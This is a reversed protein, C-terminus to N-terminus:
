KILYPSYFDKKLTELIIEPRVKQNQYIIWPIIFISNTLVQKLDSKRFNKQTILELYGPSEISDLIQELDTKFDGIFYISSNNAKASNLEKLSLFISGNQLINEIFKLSLPSNVFMRYLNMKNLQINKNEGLNTSYFGKMDVLELTIGEVHINELNIQGVENSDVYLYCNTPTLEIITNCVLSLHRCIKDLTTYNNFIVKYKRIYKFKTQNRDTAEVELIESTKM